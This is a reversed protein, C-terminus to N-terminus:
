HAMFVATTANNLAYRTVGGFILERMRSHGYGGMVVLDCGREEAAAMLTAGASEGSPELKSLITEIGHWALYDVLGDARTVDTKETGVTLIHVEDAGVLVPRAAQVAHAAERGGNWAVAVKAGVTGGSPSSVLVPRGSSMLAAEMTVAAQVSGDGVAQNPLVILDSLRGFEAVLQDERGEIELFSMSGGPEDSPADALRLNSGAQAEDFRIKAASERKDIETQSARMVQEMVIGSMGEGILPASDTPDSRAHLVRVHAEHREGIAMATELSSADADTGSLPALVVKLPM